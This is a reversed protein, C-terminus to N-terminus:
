KFIMERWLLLLTAIYPLFSNILFFCQLVYFVLCFRDFHNFMLWLGCVCFYTHFIETILALDMDTYFSHVRIVAWSQAENEPLCSIARFMSLQTHDWTLLSNEMECALINNMEILCFMFWEENGCWTESMCTCASSSYLMSVQENAKICVPITNDCRWRPFSFTWTFNACESTRNEWM